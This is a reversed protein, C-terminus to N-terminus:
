MLDNIFETMLQRMNSFIFDSASYLLTCTIYMISLGVILKLQMGVAFMNMQPAVRALVGLIVNLMFTVIFIPLCIRFGIIMYVSFFKVMSELLKESNFIAGNVPILSFSDVLASIFYRYLGSVLMMGIFAYQYIAASVPVMERSGPSMVQVMSLGVQMDAIQGALTSITTCIQAAYGILLGTFFEKIVIITFGLITDYELTKVPVLGYLLVSLLFSFGIRVMHPTNSMSFFPAIYVFMTVRVLILLFM